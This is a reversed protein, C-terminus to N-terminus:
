IRCIENPCLECHCIEQLMSLNKIIIMGSTYEIVEKKRLDSLM